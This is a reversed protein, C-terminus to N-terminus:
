GADLDFSQELEDRATEIARQLAKRGRASVDWIAQKVAARLAANKATNGGHVGLAAELLTRAAISPPLGLEAAYTQLADNLEADPRFAVLAPGPM